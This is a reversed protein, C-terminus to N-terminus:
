QTQPLFLFNKKKKAPLLICLKTIIRICKLVTEKAVSFVGKIFKDDYIDHIKLLKM